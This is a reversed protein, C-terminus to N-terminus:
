AKLRAVIQGHLHGNSSLGNGAEISDSGDVASFRGGAEALIVGMPAVDWISVIPDLMAEARGCAVLFHGYCDGWGRSVGAEGRMEMWAKGWASRSVTLASGDCLLADSLETVGSVRCPAGNHFAGHGKAAWVSEGLAPMHIVGVVPKGNDLLALLTGFLPVGHIFAKTGDIPDVVWKFRAEPLHVGHEEGIVGHEPRKEALIRRVLAEAERDAETVPTNDRKKVVAIKKQYRSLIPEEAAKVLSLALDLEKALDLTTDSM